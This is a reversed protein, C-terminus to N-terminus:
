VSFGTFHCLNSMMEVVLSVLEHDCGSVRQWVENVRGLWRQMVAAAACARLLGEVSRSMM